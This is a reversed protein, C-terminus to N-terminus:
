QTICYIFIYSKNQNTFETQWRHSGKCSHLHKEADFIMSNQVNHEFTNDPM